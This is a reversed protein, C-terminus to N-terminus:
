HGHAEADWQFARRRKFLLICITKNRSRAKREGSVFTVDGDNPRNWNGYDDHLSVAVQYLYKCQELSVWASRLAVLPAKSAKPSGNMSSWVCSRRCIKRFGFCLARLLPILNLIFFEINLIQIYKQIFPKSREEQFHIKITIKPEKKLCCHSSEFFGALTM